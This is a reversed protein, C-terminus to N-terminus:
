LILWFRQLKSLGLSSTFDTDNAVDWFSVRTNSYEDTEADVDENDGDIDAVGEVGMEENGSDDLWSDSM